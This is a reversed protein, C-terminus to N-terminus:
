TRKSKELLKHTLSRHSQLWEWVKLLKQRSTRLADHIIASCMNLLRPSLLSKIIQLAQDSAADYRRIQERTKALDGSIIGFSPVDRLKPLPLLPREELQRAREDPDLVTRM